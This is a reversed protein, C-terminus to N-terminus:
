GHRLYTYCNSTYTESAARRNQEEPKYAEEFLRIKRIQSELVEQQGAKIAILEENDLSNSM